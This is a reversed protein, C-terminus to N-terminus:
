IYDQFISCFSKTDPQCTSIYNTYIHFVMNFLGVLLRPNKGWTNSSALYIFRSSFFSTLPLDTELASNLLKFLVTPPPCEFSFDPCFLTGDDYGDSSRGRSGGRSGDSARGELDWELDVVWDGVPNELEVVLDGELDGELDVVLDGM